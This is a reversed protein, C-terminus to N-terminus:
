PRFRSLGLFAAPLDSRGHLALDAVIEGIVPAFKFGHGSFGCAITVASDHPHRGVIFHSDPSNTYTCVAGSLIPGDADRLHVLGSRFEAEDAASISRDIVDPDAPQGRRHLAVKLGPHWPLMPFGYYISSDPLEAAWCPFRGLSFRAHERPWIWGLVQRTVALPIGLDTIIRTTWAGGTIIARRALYRGKHTDIEFLGGSRRWVLVPERAHLEAGAALAQAAMASVAREPIIFGARPEVLAAHSDPLEFQPYRERLAPATLLEHDLGHGAAARASGAILEGEPSGLYVGGTLYLLEVGSRTELEQWLDLSRRLLPVYDPHEYYSMRFMRSQGHHAGSTHPIDLQELGLVRLGRRALTMAASSGMTGIGIVVADYPATM